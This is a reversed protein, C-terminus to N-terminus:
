HGGPHLPDTPGPVPHTLGAAALDERLVAGIKQLGCRHHLTHVEAQHLLGSEQAVGQVHSGLLDDRHAGHVVPVDLAESSHQAAAGRESLQGLFHQM